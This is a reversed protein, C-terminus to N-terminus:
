TLADVDEGGLQTNPVWVLLGDGKTHYSYVMGKRNITIKDGREITITSGSFSCEIKNLPEQQQDFHHNAAPQIQTPPPEPVPSPSTPDRLKNVYSPQLSSHPVDSTAPSWSSPPLPMHCVGISPPPSSPPPPPPVEKQDWVYPPPVCMPTQHLAPSWTSPLPPTHIEGVMPGNEKSYLAPTGSSTHPLQGPPPRSCPPPPPPVGKQDWVYPPPACMPTQHLAQSWTSPLPPTHIEGVMPGNEESYLSPTGSSTHLLQQPMAQSPIWSQSPSGQSAATPGNGCTTNTTTVEIKELMWANVTTYTSVSTALPERPPPPPPTLFPKWHEEAKAWCEDCVHEKAAESESRVYRRYNARINCCLCFSNKKKLSTYIGFAKRRWTPNCDRNSTCIVIVSFSGCGSCTKMVFRLAVSGISSGACVRACNYSSAGLCSGCSVVPPVCAHMIIGGIAVSLSVSSDVTNPKQSRCLDGCTTLCTLEELVFLPKPIDFFPDRCLGGSGSHLAVGLAHRAANYGYVVIM